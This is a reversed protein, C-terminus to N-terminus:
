PTEGEEELMGGKKLLAFYEEKSLLGENEVGANSQRADIPQPSSNGAERRLNRRRRNFASLGM